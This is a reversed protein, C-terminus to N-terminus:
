RGSLNVAARAHTHNEALDLLTAAADARTMASPKDILDRSVTLGGRAPADRLRNLRAITWDLRSGSVVHEMARADAYSAKFMIRLLTLPLRPTTGVLPYASTFVLRSVGAEVMAGVIVGAAEAAHHPGSRTAASVIAIVADADRIAETVANPDRADGVVVRDPREILTDPRRTFATILHGRRHGSELVHRGTRGTAGFLTIRM